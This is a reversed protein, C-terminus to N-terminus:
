FDRSKLSVDKRCAQEHPSHPLSKGRLSLFTKCPLWLLTFLKILRNGQSSTKKQPLFSRGPILSTNGCVLCLTAQALHPVTPHNVGGQLTSRGELAQCKGKLAKSNITTSTWQFVLGGKGWFCVLGTKTSLYCGLVKKLKRTCSSAVAPNTPLWNRLNACSAELFVDSLWLFSLQIISNFMIIPFKM